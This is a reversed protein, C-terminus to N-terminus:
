ALKHVQVFHARNIGNAEESGTLAWPLFTM